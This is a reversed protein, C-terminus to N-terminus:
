RKHVIFDENELCIKLGSVGFLAVKGIVDCDKVDFEVVGEEQMARLGAIRKVEASRNEPCVLGSGNSNVVVVLGDLDTCKIVFPEEAVIVCNKCDEVVCKGLVINNEDDPQIVGRLASWSGIDIWDFSGEVVQGQVDILHEEMTLPVMLAYDISCDALSDHVLPHQIKSPFCSFLERAKTDNGKAHADVLSAYVEYISPQLSQLLSELTAITFLFMGSNWFWGGQNVMENAREVTPKEEFRALLSAPKTAKKTKMTGFSTWECPDSSPTIGITVISFSSSAVKGATSLCQRFNNVDPIVHDATVVTILSSPDFGKSRMQSLAWLIAPLTNRRAPEVLINGSPVESLESKMRDAFSPGTILFFDDPSCLPPENHTDSVLRDVTQQIMSRKPDVLRTFVKNCPFFRASAGGALCLFGNRHTM